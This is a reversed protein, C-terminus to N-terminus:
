GTLCATKRQWMAFLADELQPVFLGADFLPTGAVQQRLGSRLRALREIASGHRLALAVYEDENWAVWEALGACTLLSAGIRGLTAGQALTVTPVGMWLAECTTTVGPHPVTDLVIDLEGYGALYDEREAVYGGFKVRSGLIGARALQSLLRARVHESHLADNRLLLQAQPMKKLIRGWLELTIDSLKNLRQFSGFTIYGNRLVPPPVVVLNAHEPPPTFCFLTAPLRWIEETFQAQVAAPTSVPDALFFDMAAVGTSAMYGLWSVQVPAPKWAFVPLRCYGSHGALDILIDVADGHIRHAVAEDSLGTIPTWQVFCPRIRETLEDDRPNMSYAILEFPSAQLKALVGELFFGVPHRCLDGSVFGIRLVPRELQISLRHWHKFPTARALVAEGYRRAQPLYRKAMGDQEFSLLWLLSSHATVDGANIELVREFSAVAAATKGQYQLILGLKSHAVYSGPNIKLAAQYCQEAQELEQSATYHAGLSIHLHASRPRDSLAKMLVTEAAEKRGAALLAASLEGCVVDLDPKLDHAERYHEIAAPLNGQRHAIKGLFYYANANVPDLLIARNLHKTATAYDGQGILAVGLAVRLEADGPQTSIAQQYCQVAKTLDGANLAETAREIVSIRDASSHAGDERPGDRSFSKKLWTFM